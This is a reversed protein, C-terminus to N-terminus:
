AIAAQETAKWTAAELLAGLKILNTVESIEKHGCANCPQVLEFTVADETARYRLYAPGEDIWATAEETDPPLHMTGTYTWDLQANADDGLVSRSMSRACTLFEDRHQEFLEDGQTEAAAEYERFAIGALDTISLKTTTDTM